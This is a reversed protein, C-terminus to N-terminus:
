SIAREAGAEIADRLKRELAKQKSSSYFKLGFMDKVYFTDVVQEGFTAIVASAIYVNHAALTRTLDYLLGPRDRTDVEILTYIESGENDFTISTPVKFARERKKIKDKDKIAERAVIEGRVIKAIMQRLRPIRSSEYPSGDADQIWFAATAFGDKSTYTRADVVNAGVLALAGALRSFIGPHDVLAFCVRTADRDEDPHIDIRIEDTGLDKLLNAFVVHATVHLGQWYTPYHRAKEVRLDKADWDSLAESLLRKAETGRRERNLAEMGNELGNRTQRYLARLLAAKWNNWTGPGVGRIDCVTLVLLLDLRERTQVAKAFDRVTRPDAIDRKQAMDSMLLHHRVLWEVTASDKANLGLRPAVKRAIQAGLISHDEDRGKGIDHLLLAIYLVKRNIGEELVSTAVPLEEILAGTEIESLHWICQIIHEDVTYHHYMNYQMMAVIPEFEPIFASLVGLENMRRLARDPNGHKLLLDLFIRQAEKNNRMDDDILHLNASVLRMANPHILLGTRLGEEYLRLINMKDLLFAKDDSIAIRNNIVVFGRKVQPPRKFFRMLLPADKTHDAELSTLLIRTLDGVATAHRFYNQMFIEVARRGGKDTYGMAEAVPVQMDFTLLELPRGALLHLHCRVAWLFTEAKVFTAYEEPSFVGLGVLKGTDETHYVYKTIWFLSQLDRLGGKGEKVNPEVVYRQGGQKEHRADREALKAEVFERATGNFLEKWLRTDLEKALPAHGILFRHELMATRITFDEAGLRLCDKVTRSSHGVKLKLDWLMYLMSEIVSEAWGTIKYPTLFLLDVDSFPAMEGRGYGGVAMVAIQEGKTPNANQHLRETAVEWVLTILCDTIWTYARTTGAAEFPHLALASAIADRGADRARGLIEVTTARVAREDPADAIAEWLATRVTPRDFITAAPAILDDPVPHTPATRSVPAASAEQPLTM